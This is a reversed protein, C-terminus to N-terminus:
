VKDTYRAQFENNGSLCILMDILAKDNPYHLTMECQVCVESLEHHHPAARGCRSCKKITEM